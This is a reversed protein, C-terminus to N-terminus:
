QLTEDNLSSFSLGVKSHGEHLTQRVRTVGSTNCTKHEKAYQLNRHVDSLYITSIERGPLNCTNWLWKRKESTDWTHTFCAGRTNWEMFRTVDCGAVTADFGKTWVYMSYEQRHTNGTVAVAYGFLFAFIKLSPVIIKM